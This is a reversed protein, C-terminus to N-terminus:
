DKWEIDLYEKALDKKKQLYEEAIKAREWINKAERSQIIVNDKLEYYVKEYTEVDFGQNLFNLKKNKESKLAEDYTCFNSYYKEGDYISILHLSGYRMDHIVNTMNM